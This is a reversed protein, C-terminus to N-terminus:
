KSKRKLKEHTLLIQTSVHKVDERTVEEDIDSYDNLVGSGGHCNFEAMAPLQVRQNCPRSNLLETEYDIAGTASNDVSQAAVAAFSPVAGAVDIRTLVEVAMHENETMAHIISEETLDVYKVCLDPRVAELKDRLHRVGNRAAVLTKALRECKSCGRDLKAAATALKGEHDDVLKRSCGANFGAGSYKVDDIHAMMRGQQKCLADIRQQHENALAVLNVKTSEQHSIRQIVVNVDSVGTADKIKHFALELLDLKCRSEDRERFFHSSALLPVTAAPGVVEDANSPVLGGASPCCRTARTNDRSDTHFGVVNLRMEGRKLTCGISQMRVQVMQHRESLENSRRRREEGYGVRVRELEIQAVERAHHADNSLLLLEEYDRRKVMFMRELAALQHDFSVREERLREVIQEYTKQISQAENYKILTKDLRNELMRINRKTPSDESVLPKVQLELDRIGDKLKELACRKWSSQEIVVDFQKRMKVVDYTSVGHVEAGDVEGVRKALQATLDRVERGLRKITFKNAKNNTELLALNVRRDGQLLRMRVRMDQINGEDLGPKM